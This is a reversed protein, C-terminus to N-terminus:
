RGIAFIVYDAALTSEAGGSECRVILGDNTESAAIHRIGIRDRYSIAACARARDWLLSLCGTEENRNLITVTNRRSLNIAYDFAADGAGVIVIHRRRVNLIPAVTSFVRNQINAPIELPFPRPRTGSAVVVVRPRCSTLGMEVILTEHVLDLTKVEDFLVKVGTRELQKEFLM